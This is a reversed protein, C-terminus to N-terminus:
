RSRSPRTASATSMTTPVHSSRATVTGAPTCARSWAVRSTYMTSNSRPLPSESAAHSINGETWAQGVLQVPDCYGPELDKDPDLRMWFSISGNWNKPKYGINEGGRFFVQQKMKKRFELAGGFRGEGPALRALEPAPLGPPAADRKNREEATYVKRDGRAFDADASQDFSAHLTLASRLPAASASASDAATAVGALVCGILGIRPVLLCLPRNM